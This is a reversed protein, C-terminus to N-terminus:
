SVSSAFDIAMQKADELTEATWEGRGVNIVRYDTKPDSYKLENCEPDDPNVPVVSYSTYEITIGDADVNVVRAKEDDSLTTYLELVNSPTYGCSEKKTTSGISFGFMARHSWGYWKQDKECFGISCVNHDSDIKEPAIGWKKCLRYAFKSDGIYDGTPTYATKMTFDEAGYESGDRLEERVEYGAKYRRVKLVEKVTM